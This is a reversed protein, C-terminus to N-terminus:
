RNRQINGEDSPYLMEIHSIDVHTMFMRRCCMRGIKLRDLVAGFPEGHDVSAKYDEWMNEIVKGCTFCRVPFSM